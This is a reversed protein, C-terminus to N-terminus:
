SDAVGGRAASARAASARLALAQAVAEFVSTDQLSRAAILAGEMAAFTALALSKAEDLPIGKEAIRATLAAVLDTVGCRTAAALRPSAPTAEIIIPAIACGERFGSAVLRRRSADLVGVVLEEATDVRLALRNLDAIQDAVHLLAVEVGLEEKGDPFHFYISGRPAGSEALVDSFATATYGRERYLRRAAAIM